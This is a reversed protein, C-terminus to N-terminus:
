GRVGVGHNAVKVVGELPHVPTRVLRDPCHRGYLCRVGTYQVGGTRPNFISSGSSGHCGYQNKAYIPKAGIAADPLKEYEYGGDSMPQRILMSVGTEHLFPEGFAEREM